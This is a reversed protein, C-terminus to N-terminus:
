KTVIAALFSPVESKRVRAETVKEANVLAALQEPAVGCATVIANFVAPRCLLANLNGRPIGQKRALAALVQRIEYSVQINCLDGPGVKRKSEEAPAAPTATDAPAAPPAAPPAAAPTATATKTSETKPSAM